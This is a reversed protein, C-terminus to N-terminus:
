KPGDTKTGDFDFGIIQFDTRRNKQYAKEQEEKIKMAKIVVENVIPELEGKGEAVLRRPDVGKEKVLYDVCAQARRQSLKLSIAPSFSDGRCIFIAIIIEM